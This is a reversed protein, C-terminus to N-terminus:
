VCTMNCSTAPGRESCCEERGLGTESASQVWVMSVVRGVDNWDLVKTSDKIFRFRKINLDAALLPGHHVKNPM